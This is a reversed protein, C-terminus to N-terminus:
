EKKYPARLTALERELEARRADAVAKIEDRLRISREQLQTRVEEGSTPAILIAITAGVLGGIIMGTFFSFVRRM